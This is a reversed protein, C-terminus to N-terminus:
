LELVLLGATAGGMEFSKLYVHLYYVRCWIKPSATIM